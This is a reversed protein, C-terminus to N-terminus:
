GSRLKALFGFCRYASAGYDRHILITLNEQLRDTNVARHEKGISPLAKVASRTSVLAKSSVCFCSHTYYANSM